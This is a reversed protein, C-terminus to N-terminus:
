ETLWSYKSLAQDIFDVDELRNWGLRGDYRGEVKLKCAENWRKQVEEGGLARFGVCWGEFIVIKVKEQDEGNVTEWVDSGVRDGRGNFKSKDYQPIRTRHGNKISSFTHIGLPIDHTSPQGRHQVM